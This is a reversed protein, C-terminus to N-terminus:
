VGHASEKVAWLCCNRASSRQNFIVSIGFNRTTEKVKEILSQLIIEEILPGFLTQLKFLAIIKEQHEELLGECALVARGDQGGGVARAAYDSFSSIKEMRARGVRVPGAVGSLHLYYEFAARYAICRMGDSQDQISGNQCALMLAKKLSVGPPIGLEEPPAEGCLNFCCPVICFLRCRPQENFVRIVDRSIDGCGHLSILSFDGEHLFARSFRKCAFKLAPYKSQSTRILNENSDVGVISGGPLHAESLAQCLHGKGCGIDFVTTAKCLPLNKALFDVFGRVELAKKPSMGVARPGDPDTEKARRDISCLSSIATALTDGGGLYRGVLGDRAEPELFYDNISFNLLQRHEQLFRQKEDM